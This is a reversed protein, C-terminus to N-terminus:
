SIRWDGTRPACATLDHFDLRDVLALTHVGDPDDPAGYAVLSQLRTGFIRRLDASLTEGGCWARLGRNGQWGAHVLSRWMVPTAQLVSVEHRELWAKVSRPDTAYDNVTGRVM